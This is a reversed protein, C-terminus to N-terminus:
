SIDSIFYRLLVIGIVSIAAISIFYKKKILYYIHLCLVIGYLSSLFVTFDALREIFEQPFLPNALIKKRQELYHSVLNGIQLLCFLAILVSIILRFRRYDM